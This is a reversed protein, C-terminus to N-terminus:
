GRRHLRRGAKGPRHHPPTQRPRQAPLYRSPRPQHPPRRPYAPLRASATHLRLSQPGSAQRTSDTGDYYPAGGTPYPRTAPDSPLADHQHYDYRCLIRLIQKRDQETFPPETQNSPHREATIQCPTKGESNRETRFNRGNLLLAAGVAPEVGYKAFTHVLTDGNPTRAEIDANHELLLEVMRPNSNLAAAAHLPTAGLLDERAEIDANHALLLRAVAPNPNLAAAAHLPTQGENNRAEINAGRKFLAAAVEPNPNLAAAAILPTNGMQASLYELDAGADLLIGIVAPRSSHAAAVNLASGGQQGGPASLDPKRKLQLRVATVTAKRWFGPQCLRGCREAATPEATPTPSPSILPIAIPTTTPELSPPSAPTAAPSCALLIGITLTFATAHTLRRLAANIHRTTAM